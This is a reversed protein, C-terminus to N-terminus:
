VPYSFFRHYVVVVIHREACEVLFVGKAVIGAVVLYNVAVVEFGEFGKQGFVFSANLAYVYIWRVICSVFVPNVVVIYVRGFDAFPQSLNDALFGFVEGAVVFPEAHHIRAQLQQLFKQAVVPCNKDANVIVLLCIQFQNAILNKPCPIKHRLYDPFPSICRYIQLFM